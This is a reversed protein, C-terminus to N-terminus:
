YVYGLNVRSYVASKYERLFDDIGCYYVVDYEKAQEVFNELTLYMGIIHRRNEECFVYCSFRRFAQDWLGSNIGYLDMLLDLERNLAIQQRLNTKM